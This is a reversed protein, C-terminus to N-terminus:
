GCDSAAVIEVQDGSRNEVGVCDAARQRKRLGVVTESLGTEFIDGVYNHSGGSAFCWPM